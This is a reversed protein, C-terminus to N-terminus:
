APTPLPSTRRTAPRTTRSPRPRTRIGPAPKTTVARLLTPVSADAFRKTAAGAAREAHRHPPTDRLAPERRCIFFTPIPPPESPAYGIWRLKYVAEVPSAALAILALSRSLMPHLAVKHAVSKPSSSDACITLGVADALNHSKENQTAPRPAASAERQNNM